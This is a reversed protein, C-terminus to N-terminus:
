ASYDVVGQERGDASSVRLPRFLLPSRAAAFSIHAPLTPEFLPLLCGLSLLRRGDCDPVSPPLGLWRCCCRRRSYLNWAWDGGTSRGCELTPGGRADLSSPQEARVAADDNSGTKKLEGGVEESAAEGRSPRSTSSCTATRSSSRLLM